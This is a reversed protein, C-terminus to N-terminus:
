RSSSIPTNLMSLSSTVQIYQNTDSVGPLWAGAASSVHQSYTQYKTDLRAQHPAHGFLGDDLFRSATMRADPVGAVLDHNRDCVSM